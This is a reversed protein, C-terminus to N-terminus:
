PALPIAQGGVTGLAVSLDTNQVVTWWDFAFSVQYYELQDRQDWGLRIEGVDTPFMGWLEYMRLVDGEAGGNSGSKAYQRVLGSVKYSGDAYSPDMVNPVISNIKAHWAELATRVVFSEDNIITVVWEPYSRNGEVKITRGFYPVEIVGLRSTPLNAASCTFMLKNSALTGDAGLIEPSDGVNPFSVQVEYLTPRAGGDAFSSKFTQINFAM